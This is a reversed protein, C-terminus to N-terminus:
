CQRSLGDVQNQFAQDSPTTHFSLATQHIQERRALLTTVM